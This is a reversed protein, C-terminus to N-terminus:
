ICKYIYIYVTGLLIDMIYTGNNYSERSIAMNPKNVHEGDGNAAPPHALRSSLCEQADPLRQLDLLCQLSPIGIKVM